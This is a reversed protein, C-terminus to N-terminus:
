PRGNAGLEGAALKQTVKALEKRMLRNEPFDRTLGRLLEASKEPQKERLYILALLIRAFPGLYRGRDAVLELNAFAQKKSGKVKDMRVFWKVFFPLNGLVYENVGTTLHADHFDPEVELLRVAYRNSAKANSLSGFQKKEVLAKYDTLIGEKLCLAFLSSTDQPSDALRAVALRETRDLAEMLKERVEPDPRLKKKEAIRKDDAFFEGELIMLRDLEYFLYASARFGAGLPDNPAEADHEDLISHAGEFDFNYLRELAREICPHVEIDAAAAPTVAILLVFLVPAFHKMMRTFLGSITGLM